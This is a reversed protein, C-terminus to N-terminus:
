PVTSTTLYAEIGGPSCDRPPILLQALLADVRAQTEPTRVATDQNAITTLISNIRHRIDNDQHCSAIFTETRQAEIATIAASADDSAEVASAAAVGAVVAIGCAVVLAWRERRRARAESRLLRTLSTVRTALDGEDLDDDRTM